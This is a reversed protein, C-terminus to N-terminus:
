FKVDFTTMVGLHDSPYFGKADKNKFCVISDVPKVTRGGASRGWIFDIRSKPNQVAGEALKIPSTNGTKPTDDGHVARYSDVFGEAAFRKMSAKTENTNMDGTVFTPFCDDNRKVLALTQNVQDVRNVDAAANGGSDLHTNTMDIFGGSPHKVRAVISVREEGIDEFHKETIPWRSMVAIGEGTFFGVVGSKRKVYTNYKKHGRKEILDNLKDAQDKAVEVEQLGIIDPDLRDIEDAILKFRREWQDSDHRLNITMVKVKATTKATTTTCRRATADQALDDILEDDDEGGEAACGALLVALLMGLKRIEM